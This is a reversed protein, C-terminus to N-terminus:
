KLYLENGIACFMCYHVLKHVKFSLSILGCFHSSAGLAGAMKQPKLNCMIVVPRNQMSDLPVRGNLGSLITRREPEGVDVVDFFVYM